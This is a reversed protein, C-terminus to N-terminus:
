IFANHYGYRAPLRYPKRIGTGIIYIPKKYEPTAEDDVRKQTYITPTEPLPAFTFDQSPSGLEYIVPVEALDLYDVQDIAQEIFWYSKHKKKREMTYSRQFKFQTPPALSHINEHRHTAIFLATFVMTRINM